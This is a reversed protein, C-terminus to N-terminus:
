GLDGDVLQPADQVDDTQGVGLVLQVPEERQHRLLRAGQQFCVARGQVQHVLRCALHIRCEGDAQPVLRDPQFQV